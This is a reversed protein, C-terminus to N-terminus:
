SIFTQSFNKFAEALIKLMFLSSFDREDTFGKSRDIKFM